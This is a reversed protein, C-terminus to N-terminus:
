GGLVNIHHIMIGLLLPSVSIDTRINHYIVTVATAWGGIFTLPLIMKPLVSGHLRLFYPVKSHRDMDRPGEFYDEMDLSNTTNRRSYAPRFADRTPSFTPTHHLGNLGNADHASKETTGNTDSKPERHVSRISPAASM